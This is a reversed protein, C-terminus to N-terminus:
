IDSAVPCAADLFCMTGASRGCNLHFYHRPLGVDQSLVSNNLINARQGCQTHQAPGLPAAVVAPLLWFPFSTM